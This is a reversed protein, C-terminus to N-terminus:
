GIEIEYEDFDVYNDSSASIYEGSRNEKIIDDESLHEDEIQEVDDKQVLNNPHKYEECVEKYSEKYREFEMDTAHLMLKAVSQKFEENDTHQERLVRIEFHYSNEALNIRKDFEEKGMKKLFEDPDKFPSTDIIKIDLDSFRLKPIAGLKANIGAEDNDFCVYVTDKYRKLMEAHEQNFATGLSAVSNDYGYKHLAIVDMYGECLIFSNYQSNVARNYGYLLQSKDFVASAQSNIYKPKSDDLVRGGFGVTSNNLDFIPFMIRNVFKDYLNGYKSTGILGSDLLDQRNYGKRTLYKTLGDRQTGSFGLGFSIVTKKDLDRDALYKSASANNRLLKNFYIGAEKNIDRLVQKKQENEENYSVKIGLENLAEERTIHKFKSVFDARDGSDGCSFCKYKDFKDSIVMNKGQQKCFPCNCLGRDGIVKIDVYQSLAQVMGDPKIISKNEMYVGKSVNM